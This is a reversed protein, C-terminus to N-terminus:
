AATEASCPSLRSAKKDNCYSLERPELQCVLVGLGALRWSRGQIICGGECHLPWVTLIVAFAGRACDQLLM